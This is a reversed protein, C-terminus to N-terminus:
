HATLARKLELRNTVLLDFINLDLLPNVPALTNNLPSFYLRGSRCSPTLASSNVTFWVCLFLLLLYIIRSQFIKHCRGNM